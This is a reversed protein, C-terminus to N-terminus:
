KNKKKFNKFLNNAWQIAEDNDSTILRNQDFSENEKFLGLIMVEDTVILLFNNKGKFSSVYKVKSKKEYIEWVEKSVIIEVFRGKSVLGNLKENLNVHYFPLICQVHNASTLSSEIFNFIKYADIGDSELLEAKGLLNLEMVSQNPIKDVLHGDVINFFRNLLNVVEKLELVHKMHVKFSTSLHYRNSRRYVFDKLELGNITSSISSYSLKTEDALEKMNHPKEYLLSLIKLRIISNAAYKVDESVFDYKKLDFKNKNM